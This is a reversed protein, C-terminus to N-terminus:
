GIWPRARRKLAHEWRNRCRLATLGPQQAAALRAFGPASGLNKYFLLGIRHHRMLAIEAGVSCLGAGVTRIAGQIADGTDRRCRGPAFPRAVIPGPGAQGSGGGLLDPLLPWWIM